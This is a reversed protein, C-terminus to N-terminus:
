RFNIEYVIYSIVYVILAIVKLSWYIWDPLKDLWGSDKGKYTFPNGRLKNLLPDFILWFSTVQFAFMYASELYTEPQVIIAGFVIAFFGRIIFLQLYNPKDGKKIYHFQAFAEVIPYILWLIM